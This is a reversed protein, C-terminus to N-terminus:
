LDPTDTRRNEEPRLLRFFLNGFVYCLQVRHCNRHQEFEIHELELQDLEM